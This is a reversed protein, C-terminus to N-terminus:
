TEHKRKPIGSAIGSEETQYTESEVKLIVGLGWFNAMSEVAEMAQLKLRLELYDTTIQILGVELLAELILYYVKTEM